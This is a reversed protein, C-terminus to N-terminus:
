PTIIYPGYSSSSSDFTYLGLQSAPFNEPISSTSNKELYCATEAVRECDGEPLADYRQYNGDSQLIWVGPNTLLVSKVEKKGNDLITAANLSVGLVVMCVVAVATLISLITKRM